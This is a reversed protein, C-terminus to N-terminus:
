GRRGCCHKYKRGSGCPCPDNRGVKDGERVVPGTTESFEDLAPAVGTGSRKPEPRNIFAELRTPHEEPLDTTFGITQFANEALLDALRDWREIRQLNAASLDLVVEEDRFVSARSALMALPHGGHHAILQLMETLEEAMWRREEESANSEPLREIAMLAFSPAEPDERQWLSEALSYAAQAESEDAEMAKRWAREAEEPQGFKDCVNGLRRWREADHPNAEARARLRRITKAPRRVRSGDSLQPIGVVVRREQWSEGREGRMLGATLQPLVDETFEYCGEAGCNKCAIVRGPVIERWGEGEAADPPVFVREMGYIYTRGCETCRAPLHLPRDPLLDFIEAGGRMAQLEALAERARDEEARAEERIERPLEEVSGNLRALHMACDTHDPEGPRWEEVVRELAAPDGLDYLAHWVEERAGARLMSDLAELMRRTAWKENQESLVALAQRRLVPPGTLLKGANERLLEPHATMYRGIFRAAVEAEQEAMEGAEVARWLDLLRASVPYGDLTSALWLANLYEDGEAADLWADVVQEAAGRAELESWREWLRNCLRDYDRGVAARMLDLHTRLGDRERLTREIALTNLIGYLLAYGATGRLREDGVRPTRDRIKRALALGWAFHKLNRVPEEAYDALASAAELAIALVEDWEEVGAASRLKEGWTKLQEELDSMPVFCSDEPEAEGPLRMERLREPDLLVHRLGAAEEVADEFLGRAREEPMGELADLVPGAMSPRRLKILTWVLSPSPPLASDPWRERVARMFGERDRYAWWMPRCGADEDREILDLMEEQAGADGYAALLSLAHEQTALDLNERSLCSRLPELPFDPSLGIVEDLAESVVRPDDDELLQIVAHQVAADTGTGQLRELAWERVWRERHDLFGLLEEETWIHEEPM